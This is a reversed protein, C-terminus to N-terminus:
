EIRSFIDQNVKEIQNKIVQIQTEWSALEGEEKSKIEKVNKILDEIESVQTRIEQFIKMSEEFKDIRIFIPEAKRTMYNKTVFNSPVEKLKPKVLIGKEYNEFDGTLPKQMMGKEKEQFDEADFVEKDEKEGAIAEKIINQSFKDGLPSNPFKPLQPLSDEEYSFEDLEPLEPLKPLEPFEPISSINKKMEEKKDKRTFLGM